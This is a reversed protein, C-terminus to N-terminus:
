QRIIDMQESEVYFLELFFNYLFTTKCFHGYINLLKAGMTKLSFALHSVIEYTIWIEVQWSKLQRPGNTGPGTIEAATSPPEQCEELWALPNVNPGRTFLWIDDHDTIDLIVGDELVGTLFLWHRVLLSDTIENIYELKFSNNESYYHCNRKRIIQDSREGVTWGSNKM